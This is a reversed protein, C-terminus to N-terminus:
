EREKSDPSLARMRNLVDAWTDRDVGEPRQLSIQDAHSGYRAHVASPLDQPSAVIAFAEVVEDPVARAMAAWRDPDDTRSLAHLREGLSGWGHVDLVGRYAPTSGYFAVQARVREVARDIEAGDAGTAVMTPLVVAFDARTREAAALADDVTPLIVQELYAATCFGHVLVGDATTAATRLMGKGVAALWIPPPPYASPEPSFNPTMLTHQYFEGEFQLPVGDDWTRWIARIAEIMEGMRRAPSSWPMSFRRTIHAAIQSGLGLTFRGHSLDQLDRAAVALTMPNRAFAVAIQTSIRIRDTAAAVVAATVFPDHVVEYTSVGDYGLSEAERASAAVQDLEAAVGTQIRM